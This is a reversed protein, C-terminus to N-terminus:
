VKGNCDSGSVCNKACSSEAYQNADCRRILAVGRSDAIGRSDAVASLVLFPSCASCRPLYCQRLLVKRDVEFSFRARLFLGAAKRNGRRQFKSKASFLQTSSIPIGPAALATEGM